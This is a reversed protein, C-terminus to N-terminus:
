ATVQMDEAIRLVVGLELSPARLSVYLGDEMWELEHTSPTWRGTVGRVHVSILDSGPAPPISRAVAEYVRLGYGAPEREPRAYVVQLAKAADDTQSSLVQAGPPVTTPLLVPRGLRAALVDLPISPRTAAPVGQIALSGAIQALEDRTLNGEISISWGPAFISVRRPQGDNSPEYYGVGDGVPVQQALLPPKGSRHSEIVRAWRLGDAYSFLASHGDEFVGSRWPALGVTDTPVLPESGIAARMQGASMTRFGEDIALDASRPISQRPPVDFSLSRLNVRLIAEGPHGPPLGLRAAWAARDDGGASVVEIHRPIWTQADLWIQVEDQSFIPRWQGVQQLSNLLPGADIAPLSVLVTRHGDEVREGYVHLTDTGSLSQLPLVIDTPMPADPDFPARGTVLKTGRVGLAGGRCEEVRPCIRGGDIWWNEGDVVLEGNGPVAVGATTETVKLHFREPSGFDVTETLTRDGGKPTAGYEVVDYIAQYTLVGGSALRVEHAVDLADAVRPGDAMGGFSLYGVLLGVAAAAAFGGVWSRGSPRLVVVDPDGVAAMIRSTLDPVQEAEHARIGARVRQAADAFAQCQECGRMHQEVATTLGGEGDMAVSLARQAAECTM